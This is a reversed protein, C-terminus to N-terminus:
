KGRLRGRGSDCTSMIAFGRQKSCKSVAPKQGLAASDDDSFQNGTNPYLLRKRYQAEFSPTAISATSPAWEAADFHWLTAADFRLWM